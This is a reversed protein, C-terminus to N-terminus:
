HLAPFNKTPLSSGEEGGRRYYRQVDDRTCTRVKFCSQPSYTFKHQTSTRSGQPRGACDSERLLRKASKQQQKKAQKTQHVCVPRTDGSAAPGMEPVTRPTQPSDSGSQPSKHLTAHRASCRGSPSFTRNNTNSEARSSFNASLKGAQDSRM